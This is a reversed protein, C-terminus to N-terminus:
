EENRKKRGIRIKKKELLFYLMSGIFLLLL